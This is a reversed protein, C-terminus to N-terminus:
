FLTTRHIVESIRWRELKSTQCPLSRTQLISNDTSNFKWGLLFNLLTFQSRLNNATIFICKHMFTNYLVITIIIVLNHVLAYYTIFCIFTFLASTNLTSSCPQKINDSCPKHLSNRDILHLSVDLSIWNGNLYFNVIRLSEKFYKNNRKIKRSIIM